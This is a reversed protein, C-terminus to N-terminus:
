GFSALRSRAPAAHVAGATLSAEADAQELAAGSLALWTSAMHLLENRRAEESCARVAAAADRAYRLYDHAHRLASM